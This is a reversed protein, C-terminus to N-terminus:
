LDDIAQRIRFDSSTVHAEAARLRRELDRFKHRLAGATNSPNTRVDRWFREEGQDGYMDLPTDKLILGLLIYAILVASGGTILFAIVFGWRVCCRSVGLYDSIGACVGMFKGNRKNKYLRTPSGSHDEHGHDSDRNLGDPRRNRRHHHKNNM